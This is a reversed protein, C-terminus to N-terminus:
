KPMYPKSWQSSTPPPQRNEYNQVSVNVSVSPTNQTPMYPKSWQSSTPPPQRNEYNQSSNNPVSSM